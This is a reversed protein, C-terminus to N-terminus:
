NMDSGIRFEQTLYQPAPSEEDPGSRIQHPLRSRLSDIALFRDGSRPVASGIGPARPSTGAVCGGVRTTVVILLASSMLCAEFEKRAM